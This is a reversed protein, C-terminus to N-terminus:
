KLARMSNIVAIVTVGVDAFVAEWMNAVGFIALLLVLLKIGLSFIINQWLIKNTKKAVLIGEKLAMPNDQMLVIDAAEIAADSGIGGMAVGLDARALVPADNIGDGVFAVNKYEKSELIEELKEVKGSPLLESYVTDVGLEKAVKEGVKKNDGTLMVINKVGVEKLEKIAKKSDQKIKDSIIISGKFEGNVALYVITGIADIETVKINNSQMLKYNGVLIKNGDIEGQIGMGPVEKHNEVIIDEVDGQKSAEFEDLISKAIPHNSLKECAAAYKLVDSKSLGGYSDIKSVKFIGETLTGTKDFIVVDVNKLVELYNGGKVLIGKKSASGIGAFLGLPVSVVLACPCSVVLFILARSFWTTFEQGPIVIPPVIALVIAAIVVVPTYYRSFKTIFKETKAKKSSANQVLELIRAVTSQEFESSVRMKITGTINISGGLVEQGCEKEVPISEGTLASTDITTNGEVITGDLPVREGPKIVIIENMKVEEPAVKLIRGDKFLNAYEAKIDMLASISNRSKNVAYSQFMEGIGYFIMVAVAEPYEGIALAGFTAITMLFNEDFFNGKILNKFATIIVKHGVLLYAIIFFIVSISDKEGLFIGIGYIFIGIILQINELLKNILKSEKVKEEKTDDKNEELSSGRMEGDNANYNEVVVGPELKNVVAKIKEFEERESINEYEVILLKFSFNLTCSKVEPFESVLSEIKGACHACDLGKLSLKMKGSTSNKGLSYKEVVVHPELKNIIGRVKEIMEDESLNDYEVILLKFSFNLTCNKVEPLESVINEIKGACHACDLGKLSLKLKEM